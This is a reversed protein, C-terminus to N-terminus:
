ADPGAPVDAGAGVTEPLGTNERLTVCPVNLICAEEQVGGSDTLVLRAGAELGPFGPYGAPPVMSIGRPTIGFTEPMKQTRPHMPFIVPM